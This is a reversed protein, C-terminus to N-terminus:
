LKPQWEALFLQWEGDVERWGSTVAYGQAREPLLGGSGGTLVLTFRVEARGEQLKTELPGLTAGISANRLLQVRVLNHLAARDMGGSGVFDDAVHQIFDAPRREIAAAQMRDITDRLRVEAPERSCGGLLLLAALLTAGYVLGFSRPAGQERQM